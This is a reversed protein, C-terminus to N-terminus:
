KGSMDAVQSQEVSPKEAQRARETNILWQKCLVMEAAEAGTIPARDLFEITKRIVDIKTV